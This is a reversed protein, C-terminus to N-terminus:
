KEHNVVETSKTMMSALLVRLRRRAKRQESQRLNHVRGKKHYAAVAVGSHLNSERVNLHVSNVICSILLSHRHAAIASRDQAYARGMTIPQVFAFSPLALGSSAGAALPKVPAAQNRMLQTAFGWVMRSVFHRRDFARALCRNPM